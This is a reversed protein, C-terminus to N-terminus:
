SNMFSLAPASKLNFSKGIKERDGPSFLHLADNWFVRNMVASDLLSRLNNELGLGKGLRSQILARVADSTYFRTELRCINGVVYVAFAREPQKLTEGTLPEFATRNNWYRTNLYPRKNTLHPINCNDYFYDRLWGADAQSQCLLNLAYDIRAFPLKYLRLNEIGSERRLLYQLIMLQYFLKDQYDTERKFGRTNVGDRLFKSVSSSIDLFSAWENQKFDLAFNTRNYIFNKSLHHNKSREVLELEETTLHDPFDEFVRWIFSDALVNEAIIAQVKGNFISINNM